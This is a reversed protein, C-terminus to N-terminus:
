FLVAQNNSNVVMEKPYLTSCGYFYLILSQNKFLLVIPFPCVFGQLSADLNGELSQSNFELKESICFQVM